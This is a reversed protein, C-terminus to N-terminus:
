VAKNKEESGKGEEDKHDGGGEQASDDTNEKAYKQELYAKKYNEIADTIVVVAKGNLLEISTIDEFEDLEIDLKKVHPVMKDKVQQIKLGLKNLKKQEKDVIKYQKRGADVAEQKKKLFQVLKKDEVIVKRQM